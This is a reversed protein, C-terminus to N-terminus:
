MGGFGSTTECPITHEPNERLKEAAEEPTGGGGPEVTSFFLFVHVGTLGDDHGREDGDWHWQWRDAIIDWPQGSGEPFTIIFGGWGPPKKWTGSGHLQDLAGFMRPSNIGKFIGHRNSNNLRRWPNSWTARDNRDIDGLRKLEAWMFDQMALASEGPFAERLHLYGKEKFSQLDEPSVIPTTL